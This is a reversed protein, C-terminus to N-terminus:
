RELKRDHQRQKKIHRKKVEKKTIRDMESMAVKGIINKPLMKDFPYSFGNHSRTM